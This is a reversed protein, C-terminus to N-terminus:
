VGSMGPHALPPPTGAFPQGATPASEVGGLDLRFPPYEDRMLLLYVAVRYAWRNLGMVLEFIGRPYRGTFLLAFGAFIVLVTILGSYPVSYAIGNRVAIATGGLLVALILYHPIALLWKVLILGRSLREPYPVDLTAAYGDPSFSFPPYQETGLASYGYYSVRWWWRLVSVNFEFISRPYRGTFLIAFWAVVTLVVMAPTLIVLVIYHPILLFWKVLWLWRSPAPDPRGEFRLPYSLTGVAPPLPPPAPTWGPAAPPAAVATPPTHLLAAGAVLLLVAILMVVGGGILLGISLGFLLPATAGVAVDASVVPTAAANMLVVAWHGSAVKWTLTQVGSGSAHAVWFSQAIPSGPAGGPHNEYTVRFPALRFETLQDWGAGSLYRDVADRTAIGVFVAAGTQSPTATIRVNGLADQAVPWGPASLAVSVDPAVIAYSSSTLRSTGSALYGNSDRQTRDAWMLVGGGALLGIAILTLLSGVILTLIGGFRRGSRQSDPATTVSM